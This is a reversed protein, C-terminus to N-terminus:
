FRQEFTLKESLGQSRVKDLIVNRRKETGQETNKGWLM